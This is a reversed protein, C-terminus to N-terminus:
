SKGKRKAAAKKKEHAKARRLCNACQGCECSPPRGGNRGGSHTTRLASSLAGRLSSAEERTLTVTKGSPLPVTVDGDPTM